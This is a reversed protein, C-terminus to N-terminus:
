KIPLTLLVKTGSPSEDEQLDLISYDIKDNTKEAFLRLREEIAVMSFSEHHKNNKEKFKQAYARGVGNDEIVCLITNKGAKTFSIVLTRKGKKHLLGHTVANEVFPQVLMTPIRYEKNELAQSLSISYKFHDEFRLAELSLYDQLSEVEESLPIYELDSQVLYRRILHAFRGLYESAATRNNSIIYEQVSNLANFIFHPNMQAKLAKLESATQKRELDIEVIKSRLENTRKQEKIKWLYFLLSFLVLFSLGIIGLLYSRNKENELELIKTKKEILDKDRKIKETEFKVELNAIAEQKEVGLISDTLIINKKLYELSKKHNGKKEYLEALMQQNHSLSKLNNNEKLLKESELLYSEAQDFKKWQIANNGLNNNALIIGANSNLSKYQKLAKLYYDNAVRFKEKKEYITGFNINLDALSRVDNDLSKAINAYSLANDLQNLEQKTACLNIAIARLLSKNEKSISDFYLEELLNDATEWEKMSIYVGALNFATILSRMKFKLSDNNFFALAENFYKIAGQFDGKAKLANAM